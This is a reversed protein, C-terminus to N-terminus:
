AHESFFATPAPSSTGLVFDYVAVHEAEVPLIDAALRRAAATRLETTVYAYYAQAAEMELKRAFLLVATKREGDSLAADLIAKPIDPMTVDDTNGEVGMERAAKLLADRHEGHQGMFRGATALVVKDSAIFPLGAATKYVRIAIEELEAGKVLLKGDAEAAEPGPTTTRATTEEKKCGALWLGAAGLAFSRRDMREFM